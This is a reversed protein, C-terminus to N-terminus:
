YPKGLRKQRQREQRMARQEPYKGHTGGEDPDADFHCGCGTCHYQDPGYDQKIVRVTKKRGCQICKVDQSM